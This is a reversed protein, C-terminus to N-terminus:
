AGSGGTRGMGGVVRRLVLSGVVALVVPVAVAVGLMASVAPMQDYHMQNYLFSTIPQMSYRSVGLPALLEGAAVDFYAIVFLLWISWYGSAFRLEWTLQRASQRQRNGSASSDLLTVTHLAENRRENRLLVRLAMAIPLVILMLALLLPLATNRLAPMWTEFVGFMVVSLALSGMLGPVALLLCLATWVAALSRESLAARGILLGTFWWALWSAALAFLVSARVYEWARWQAILADFSFVVSSAVKGIPYAVVFVVGIVLYVWVWYRNARARPRHADASLDGAQGSGWQVLTVACMLAFLESVV